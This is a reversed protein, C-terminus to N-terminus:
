QKMGEWLCEELTGWCYSDGVWWLHTSVQYIGILLAVALIAAVIKGRRTLRM